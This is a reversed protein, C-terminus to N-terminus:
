NAPKNDDKEGTNDPMEVSGNDGLKISFGGKRIAKLVFDVSTMGGLGSLLCIGILFCLNDRFKTYWLLGIGLGLLGSNLVASLIGLPTIKAGSRLLAALGALASVAFASAFVGWFSITPEM